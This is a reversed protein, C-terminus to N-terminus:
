HYVGAIILNIEQVMRERMRHDWLGTLKGGQFLLIQEVDRCYDKALEFIGLADPCDIPPIWISVTKGAVTILDCCCGLTPNFIREPHDQIETM